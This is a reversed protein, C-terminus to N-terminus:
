SFSHAAASIIATETAAGRVRTIRPQNTSTRWAGAENASTALMSGDANPLESTIVASANLGGTPDGGVGRRGARRRRLEEGPQRLAEGAAFEEGDLRLVVVQAQVGAQALVQDQQPQRVGDGLQLSDFPGLGV